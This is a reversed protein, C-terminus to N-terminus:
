YEGPLLMVGDILYLKVSELPFDTYPIEQRIIEVDDNCGTVVATQEELNVELKWVQFEPCLRKDSQYSGVVDLLWYCGASEALALVGDTAVPFGPISSFRHYAETANAQAIVDMVEQRSKM